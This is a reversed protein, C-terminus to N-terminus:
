LEEFTGNVLSFIVITALSPGEGEVLGGNMVIDDFSTLAPAVVTWIILTLLLSAGLLLATHAADAIRLRKFGLDPPRWGRAFLFAIILAGVVIEFKALDSFDKARYTIDTPSVVSSIASALFLGFAAALVVAM